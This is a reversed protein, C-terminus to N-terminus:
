APTEGADPEVIADVAAGEASESTTLANLGAVIPDLAAPDIGNAGAAIIAAVQEALQAIQAQTDAQATAAADLAAQLEAVSAMITKGIQRIDRRVLVLVRLAEQDLGIDELDAGLDALDLARDVPDAM